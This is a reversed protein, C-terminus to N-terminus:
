KGIRNQHRDMAQAVETLAVALLRMNDGNIFINMYSSMKRREMSDKIWSQESDTSPWIQIQWPYHHNMSEAITPLWSALWKAALEMDPTDIDHNTGNIDKLTIRM